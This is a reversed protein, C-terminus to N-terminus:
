ESSARKLWTSFGQDTFAGIPLEDALLESDIASMERIEQDAMWFASCVSVSLFLLSSVLMQRVRTNDPLFYAGLAAFATQAVLQKQHALALKRAAALRGTTEAPLDRLSYNLRQALKLAFQQEHRENM